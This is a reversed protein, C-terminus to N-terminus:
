GGTKAEIRWIYIDGERMRNGGKEDNKLDSNNRGLAVLVDRKAGRMKEAAERGVVKLAEMGKDKRAERNPEEDEDEELFM